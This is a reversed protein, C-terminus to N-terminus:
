SRHCGACSKMLGAVATRAGAIDKKETAATLAKVAAVYPGPRSRYNVDDKIELSLAALPKINAALLDWDPRDKEVEDQVIELPADRVDKKGKHAAQMMREVKSEEKDKADGSSAQMGFLFAATAGAAVVLLQGGFRSRMNNAM